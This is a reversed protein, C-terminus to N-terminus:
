EEEGESVAHAKQVMDGIHFKYAEREEKYDDYKEQPFEVIVHPGQLSKLIRYDRGGIEGSAWEEHLPYMGDGYPKCDVEPVQQPM